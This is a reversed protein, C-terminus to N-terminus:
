NTLLEAPGEVAPGCGEPLVSVLYEVAEAATAADRDPVESRNVGARVAWGGGFLPHLSPVDHSCPDHTYRSFQLSGHSVLPFLARLAPAAYAAEVIEPDILDHPTDRVRQWQFAVAEGREHALLLGDIRFSPWRAQFESFKMGARWAQAMEVATELDDVGVQADGAGVWWLFVHYGRRFERGNQPLTVSFWGREGEVRAIALRWRDTPSDAGRVAGLDVGMGEAARRLASVLDGGAAVVEPHLGPDPRM